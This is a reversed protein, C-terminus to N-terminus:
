RSRAARFPRFSVRTEGYDRSELLTFGEPLCTPPRSARRLWSSRAPVSGAAKRAPESRARRSIAAMPRIASSQSRRSHVQRRAGLRARMAGPVPPTVGGLGLAEVNERILGRAQAGDDVFLAFAAGRSLAELGLAGTGAFLDIVRAGACADDHGHALINFIAKVCAIPHRASRVPSERGRARGARRGSSRAGALSARGRHAHRILEAAVQETGQGSRRGSPGSPRGKPKGGPKGFLNEPPNAVLEASPGQRRTQRVAQGGRRRSTRRFARGRILPGSPTEERVPARWPIRRAYRQRSWRPAGRIQRCPAGPGRAPPKAVRAIMVILRVNRTRAQVSTSVRRGGAPRSAAQKGFAPRAGGPASVAGGRGRGTQGQGDGSGLAPADAPDAKVREVLVRNGSRPSIAGVREHKRTASAERAAKPDADRRKRFIPGDPAEDARWVSAKVARDWAPRRPPGAPSEGPKGGSKKEGFKGGPKDGFKKEGFKETVGARAASPAQRRRRARSGPEGGAEPGGEAGM